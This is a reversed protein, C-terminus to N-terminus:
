ERGAGHADAGDAALVTEHDPTVRRLVAEADELSMADVPRCVGILLGDLLAVALDLDDRSLRYRYARAITALERDRAETISRGGPGGQWWMSLWGLWARADPLDRETEPLFARLGCRPLRDHIDLLRAKATRAAAVELLRSRRDFHHLISSTSVRSVAAIRRMTLATPGEEVLLHNVAAVLTGTRSETEILM